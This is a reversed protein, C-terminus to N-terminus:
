ILVIVISLILQFMTLARCINSSPVVDGYGLSSGTVFSFYLRNFFKNWISSKALNKIVEEEEFDIKIEAAKEKIEKAEDSNQKQKTTFGEDPIKIHPKIKRQIIEDKIMEELRNIGSFHSDDIFMYLLSFLIIQLFIIGLKFRGTM